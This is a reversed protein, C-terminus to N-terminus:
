ISERLARGARRAPPHTGTALVGAASDSSQGRRVDPGRRGSIVLTASGVTLACAFAIAIGVALLVGFGRVM